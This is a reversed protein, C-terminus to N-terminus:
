RIHKCKPVNVGNVFISFFSKATGTQLTGMATCVVIVPSSHYELFSLLM